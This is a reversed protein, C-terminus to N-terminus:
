KGGKKSVKEIIPIVTAPARLSKWESKPCFNWYGGGHLAVLKEAQTNSVQKIEVTNEPFVHKVCKM